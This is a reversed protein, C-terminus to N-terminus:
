TDKTEKTDEPIIEPKIPKDSCHSFAESLESGFEALHSLEIGREKFDESIDALNNAMTTDSTLKLHAVSAEATTEVFKGLSKKTKKSMIFWLVILVVPILLSEMNDGKHVHRYSM